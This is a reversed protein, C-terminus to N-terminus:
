LETRSPYRTCWIDWQCNLANLTNLLWLCDSKQVFVFVFYFYRCFLPGCTFLMCFFGMGVWYTVVANWSRLIYIHVNGNCFYLKYNEKKSVDWLFATGEFGKGEKRSIVKQIYFFPVLFCFGKCRLALHLADVRQYRDFMQLAECFAGLFSFIQPQNKESTKGRWKVPKWQWMQSLSLYYWHIINVFYSFIVDSKWM